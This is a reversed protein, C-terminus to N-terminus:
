VLVLFYNYIIIGLNNWSLNLKKKVVIILFTGEVVTSDGVGFVVIMDLGVLLGVDDGVFMGDVNVVFIGVSDKCDM